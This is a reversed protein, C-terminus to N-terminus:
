HVVASPFPPTTVNLGCAGPEGGRV